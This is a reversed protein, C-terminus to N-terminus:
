TSKDLQGFYIIQLPDRQLVGCMITKFGAYEHMDKALIYDYCHHHLIRTKYNEKCRREFEAIGFDYKQPHDTDLNEQLHTMDNELTNNNYDQILHEMTTTNRTKDWFMTKNPLITLIYSKDNMVSQINKLFLIPNAMHEVTHSSICLDYKNSLNNTNIDSSELNYNNRYIKSHEKDRTNDYIDFISSNVNDIIQLKNYLPMMYPNWFLETPGGIEITHLNTIRNTIYDWESNDIDNLKIITNSPDM